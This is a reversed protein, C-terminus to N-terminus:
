VKLVELHLHNFTSRGSLDVRHQILKSALMRSGSAVVFYVEFPGCPEINMFNDIVDPEKFIDKNLFPMYANLGTQAMGNEVNLFSKRPLSGVSKGYFASNGLRNGRSEQVQRYYFFIAKILCQM